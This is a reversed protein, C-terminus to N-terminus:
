GERFVSLAVTGTTEKNEEHKQKCPIYLLHLNIPIMALQVHIVTSLFVSPSLYDRITDYVFTCTTGISVSTTM